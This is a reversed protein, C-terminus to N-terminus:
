TDRYCTVRPTYTNWLDKNWLDKNKSIKRGTLYGIQPVPVCMFIFDFYM